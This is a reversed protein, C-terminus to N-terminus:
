AVDREDKRQHEKEVADMEKLIAMAFHPPVSNGVMKVAETKTIKRRKTQSM